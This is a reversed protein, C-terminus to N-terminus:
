TPTARLQKRRHELLELVPSRELHIREYGILQEIQTIDLTQTQEALAGVPIQDYDAVALRRATTRDDPSRWDSRCTWLWLHGAWPM